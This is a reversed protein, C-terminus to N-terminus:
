RDIHFLGQGALHKSSKGSLRYLDLMLRRITVPSFRELQIRSMATLITLGGLANWEFWRTKRLGREGGQSTHGVGETTECGAVLLASDRERTELMLICVVVKASYLGPEGM